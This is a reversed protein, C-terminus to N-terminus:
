AFGKLGKTQGTKDKPKNRMLNALTESSECFTKENEFFGKTTDNDHSGTFVVCNKIHNHPLFKNDGTEGFAFQLIKM